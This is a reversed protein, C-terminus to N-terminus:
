RTENTSRCIQFLVLQSYGWTEPSVPALRSHCTTRLLFAVITKVDAMATPCAHASDGSSRAEHIKRVVDGYGRRDKKISKRKVNLLNGAEDDDETSTALGKIRGDGVISLIM